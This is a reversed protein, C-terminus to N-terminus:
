TPLRGEEVLVASVSSEVFLVSTIWTVLAFVPVHVTSTTAELTLAPGCSKANAATSTHRTTGGRPGSAESTALSSPGIRFERAARPTSIVALPINPLAPAPEVAAIAEDADVTEFGPKTDLATGPQNLIAKYSPWQKRFLPNIDTGFADVLM